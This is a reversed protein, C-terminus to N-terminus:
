THQGHSAGKLHRDADQEDRATTDLHGLFDLVERAFAEPNDINSLHGARPITRLRSGRIGAAIDESLSRPAKTDQEGWLVLTPVDVQPLLSEIDVGFTARVTALYEEPRLRAIAKRVLEAGPPYPPDFTAAVYEDAVAAMSGADVAQEQQTIKTRAVAPDLKVFSDAVVLGRVRDPHAAAYAVAQMGGMSVGVLVAPPADLEELLAHLDNAWRQVTVPGDLQGTSDGHGATDPAILWRQELLDLCPEWITHDTGLSHLLVVPHGDAPGKAVYGLSDRRPLAADTSGSETPHSV